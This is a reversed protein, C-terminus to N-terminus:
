VRAVKMATPGTAIVGALAPAEAPWRGDDEREIEISFVMDHYAWGARSDLLRISGVRAQLPACGTPAARPEDSVNPGSLRRLTGRVSDHSRIHHVRGDISAM